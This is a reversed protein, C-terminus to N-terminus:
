FEKRLRADLSLRGGGFAAILAAGAAWFTSNFVAKAQVQHLFGAGGDALLLAQGNATLHELNAQLFAIGGPTLLPASDYPNAIHFWLTIALMVANALAVPRTLLGLAILAGGVFQLVALAPSFFWGAPWGLVQEVFGVQALPAQIKPWGEVMLLGGIILRFALWGVPQAFGHYFPALFPLVLRERRTATMEEM